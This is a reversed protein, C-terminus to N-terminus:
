ELHEENWNELDSYARSPRSEYVASYIEQLVVKLATAIPVSILMGVLGYYHQGVIVVVILILPHLNVLKAVVLPFIVVTDILNAVFYVLIIPFIIGSHSQDFAAIFLGSAAGLLPGLYPVINTIGAVIGLVISYPSGVGALGIMVMLGLLVAEVLKARIYDSIANTIDTTVLFFSEFYRNPVLQFFGRRITRGENLLVFTLPPIIFIWTFFSGMLSPGHDVFWRGTEEGWKLVRDTPQVTKLFPYQIKLHTEIGKLKQIARHFHDPASEKFSSWEAMGTRIGWLGFLFIIIGFLAFILTISLTRSHGRRELASVWPSLLTTAVMSLLAPSSLAPTVTFIALTGAAVFILCALKILDRKLQLNNRKLTM